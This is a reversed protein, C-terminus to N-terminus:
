DDSITGLIKGKSRNEANGLCRWFRSRVEMKSQALCGSLSQLLFVYSSAFIASLINV